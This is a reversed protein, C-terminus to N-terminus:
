KNLLLGALKAERIVLKIEGFYYREKARKERWNKYRCPKTNAASVAARGALTKLGTSLGGLLRCRRKGEIPIRM